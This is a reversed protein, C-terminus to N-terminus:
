IKLPGRKILLPIEELERRCGMIKGGAALAWWTERETFGRFSIPFVRAGPGYCQRALHNVESRTVTQMM